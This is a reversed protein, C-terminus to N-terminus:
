VALKEFGGKSAQPTASLKRGTPDDDIRRGNRIHPSDRLECIPIAGSPHSRPQTSSNQQSRETRSLFSFGSLPFTPPKSRFWLMQCRLLAAERIHRQGSRGSGISTDARISFSRSASREKGDQDAGRPGCVVSYSKRIRLRGPNLVIPELMTQKQGDFLCAL